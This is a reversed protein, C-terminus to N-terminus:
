PGVEGLDTHLRVQKLRLSGDDSGIERSAGDTAWGAALLFRRLVDDETGV